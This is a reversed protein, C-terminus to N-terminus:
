ISKNKKQSKETENNIKKGKDGDPKFVKKPKGEISDHLASLQEYISRLSTVEPLLGDNRLDEDLYRLEERIFRLITKAEDKKSTGM